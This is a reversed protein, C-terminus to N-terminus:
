MYHIFVCYLTYVSQYLCVEIILNYKIDVLYRTNLFIYKFIIKYTSYNIHENVVCIYM